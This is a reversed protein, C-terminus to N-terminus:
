SAVDFPLSFGYVEEEEEERLRRRRTTTQRQQQQQQARPLALATHRGDAVQGCLDTLKSVRPASFAFEHPTHHSFKFIKSRDRIYIYVCM